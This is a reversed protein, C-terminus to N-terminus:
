QKCNEMKQLKNEARDDSISKVNHENGTPDRFPCNVESCCNVPYFLHALFSNLQFCSHISKCKVLTKSPEPTNCIMTKKKLM